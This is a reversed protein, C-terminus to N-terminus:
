DILAVFKQNLKIWHKIWNTIAFCKFKIKNVFNLWFFDFECMWNFELFINSTIKLPRSCDVLLASLSTIYVCDLLFYVLFRNKWTNFLEFARRVRKATRLRSISHLNRMHEVCRFEVGIYCGWENLSWRLCDHTHIFQSNNKKLNFFLSSCPEFVFFQQM